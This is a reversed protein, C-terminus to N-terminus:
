ENKDDEKNLKQNIEHLDNIIEKILDLKNNMVILEDLIKEMNELSKLLSLDVM